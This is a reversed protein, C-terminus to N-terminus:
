WEMNLRGAKYEQLTMQATFSLVGGERSLEELVLEADRSGFALCESAATMRVARNDSAMLRLLHARGDETSRLIKAVRHAEVFLQNAVDVTSQALAWRSTVDEFRAALRVTESDM